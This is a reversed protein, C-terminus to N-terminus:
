SDFTAGTFMAKLEDYNTIFENFAPARHAMTLTPENDSEIDLLTMIDELSSERIQDFDVIKTVKINLREFAREMSETRDAIMKMADTVEVPTITVHPYDSLVYKMNGDGHQKSYNWMIFSLAHHFVDSRSTMIIEDFTHIFKNFQEESIFLNFLRRLAHDHCKVVIDNDSTIIKDTTRTMHACIDDIDSATPTNWHNIHNINPKFVTVANNSDHWNELNSILTEHLLSFLFTTGSREIGTVLIKMIDEYSLSVLIISSLAV